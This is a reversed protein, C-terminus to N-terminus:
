FHGPFSVGKLLKDNDTHVFLPPRDSWGDKGTQDIIQGLLTDTSSIYLKNKDMPEPDRESDDM